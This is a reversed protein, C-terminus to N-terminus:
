IQHDQRKAAIEKLVAMTYQEPNRNAM